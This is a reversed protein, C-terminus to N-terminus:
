VEGLGQEVVEDVAALDVGVPGVVAQDDFDVGPLVVGVWVGEFCISGLVREQDRFALAHEAHGLTLWACDGGDGAGEAACRRGGHARLPSRARRPPGARARRPPPNRPARLGVGSERGAAAGLATTSVPLTSPASSRRGGRARSSRRSGADDAPPAWLTGVGRPPYILAPQWPPDFMAGVRPWMFVSPVCCCGAAASTSRPTTRGTSWCRTARGARRRSAPGGFVEIAGGATLARARAAIDDELVALIQEWVPELARTWYEAVCTPSCACDAVRCCRRAPRRPSRRGPVGPRAGLAGAADADGARARDGGVVDPLPSAPPPAIFDPTYGYHPCSRRWCRSTSARWASARPEFGRCTCRRARRTACAGGRQDDGRVAALDRLADAPPRRPRLPLRDNPEPRIM